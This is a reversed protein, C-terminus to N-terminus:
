LQHSLVVENRGGDQGELEVLQSVEEMRHVSKDRASCWRRPREEGAHRTSYSRDQLARLVWNLRDKQVHFAEFFHERSGLRMLFFVFLLDLLINGFNDGEQDFFVLLLEKLHDLLEISSLLVSRHGLDQQTLQERAERCLVQHILEFLFATTTGEFCDKLSSVHVRLLM